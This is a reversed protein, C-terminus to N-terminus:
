EWIFQVIDHADILFGEKATGKNEVSSQREM